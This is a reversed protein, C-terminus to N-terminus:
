KFFVDELSPLVIGFSDVGITSSNDELEKFLREFHSAYIPSLEYTTEQGYSDVIRADPVYKRILASINRKKSGRRVVCIQFIIFTM